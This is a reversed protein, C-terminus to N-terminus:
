RNIQHSRMLGELISEPVDFGRCRGYRDEVKWQAVPMQDVLWDNNAAKTVWSRSRGVMEAFRKNKVFVTEENPDWDVTEDLTRPM